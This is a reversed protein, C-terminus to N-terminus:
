VPGSSRLREEAKAVQHLMDYYLKQVENNTEKKAAYRFIELTDAEIQLPIGNEKLIQQDARLSFEKIRKGVASKLFEIEHDAAQTRYWYNSYHYLCASLQPQYVELYHRGLYRYYRAIDACTYCYCYMKRTNELLAYWEGRKANNECLALRSEIDVPNWEMANQFSQEAEELMGAKEELMGKKRFLSNLPYPSCEYEDPNVWFQYLYIELNHNPCFLVAKHKKYKLVLKEILEKLHEYNLKSSQM